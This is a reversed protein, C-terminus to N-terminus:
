AVGMRVEVSEILTHLFLMHLEQIRDSTTGPAMVVIDCLTAVSGGGKGLLGVTTMRRDKAALCAHVLNKSAGSTSLVILMDGENGFATVMRSFVEDFGFDNAVCTLHTSDGLAMAPFPPRDKRFRGTWEEAFHLADAMSGGNGAILVKGGARFLTSLRVTLEEAAELVKPDYAFENLVRVAEAFSRQFVSNM